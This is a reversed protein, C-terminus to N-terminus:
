ECCSTGAQGETCMPKCAEGDGCKTKTVVNGDQCEFTFVNSQAPWNRFESSCYIGDAKGDCDDCADPFGTPMKVCGHPCHRLCKPEMQADCEVLDDAPLDVGTLGPEDGCEARPYTGCGISTLDFADDCAPPFPAGSSSSSSSSSSSAGDDGSSSSSSSSSSKRGADIEGEDIAQGRDPLDDFTVLFTCGVACTAVVGALAFTRM